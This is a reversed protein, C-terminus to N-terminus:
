KQQAEAAKKLYARIGELYKQGIASNKAVWEANQFAMPSYDKRMQELFPEIKAYLFLGEVSNEVLYEANVINNKALGFVMEWYSSTQRFAANMEHEPNGIAVLDDYSRPSFKGNILDRSARMVTERRMEYLRLVLDADYYDAREKAM